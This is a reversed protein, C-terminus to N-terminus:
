GNMYKKIGSKLEIKYRWGLKNLRTVDLLKRPTGDPKSTDWKIKGKYGVIEKIMEVLDKIKVDEGTGINVFYDPSIKKMKEAEVENMLYICADALDDVYMFERYVEGTGWVTISEKTIGVKELVKEITKPDEKNIEKDLGFGIPYKEVDKIIDEYREEMLLKGLHFKRLLAPLVHSTELNFNDNPGYLNTPMVSIFNTGYQENFYRVMKIASIKAIAYPENTPELEGTLLYEEKMPQPAYKPYICSSGLNLLKKVGYRYSAEIVNGAIMINQYIFEAKYTNNALIGGVKAAALFVYEPREKEFFERTAKQDTLDLEKHTKTIINTYGLEKLKRVIASGVLGRHGAVYIKSDKEM